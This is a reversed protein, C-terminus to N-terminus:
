AGKQPSKALDAAAAAGGRHKGYAGIIRQVVPHRAVDKQHLRCFKVGETNALAEMAEHLGSKTGPRLDIQTPDGTVVCRSGNGLRTLLMFMQECTTNQAEDLIIAADNLTRGRMYALPAIEILERETWREVEYPEAVDHIADYLPRLYPLIKEKLDGPLFGLAEGAEVAPRTLIIRGIKKDKLAQLAAAVALYTKGTGAPGIGFVVEESQLARVYELQGATKPSVHPKSPTGLLKVEALEDLSPEDDEGVVSKVVYRFAQPSIELGKRRAAELNKFIQEANGVAEAEGDFQLWSDRTTVKVGLSNQISKLLALDNAFLSQLFHPDDYQLKRSEM